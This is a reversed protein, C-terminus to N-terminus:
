PWSDMAEVNQILAKSTSGQTCAQAGDGWDFVRGTSMLQAHRHRSASLACMGLGKATARAQTQAASMLLAM